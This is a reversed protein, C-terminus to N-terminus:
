LLRELNLSKGIFFVTGKETNRIQDKYLRLLTHMGDEKNIIILIDEGNNNPVIFFSIDAKKITFNKKRKFPVTEMTEKTDLKEM